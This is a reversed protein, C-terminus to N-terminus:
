VMTEYLLCGILVNKLDHLAIRWFQVSLLNIYKNLAKKSVKNKVYNKKKSYYYSAIYILYFFFFFFCVFM